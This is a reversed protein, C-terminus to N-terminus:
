KLNMLNSIPLASGFPTKAIGDVNVVMVGIGAADALLVLDNVKMGSTIPGVPLRIPGNTILM